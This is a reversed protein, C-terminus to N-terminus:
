VLLDFFRGAPSDHTVRVREVAATEVRGEAAPRRDCRTESPEFVDREPWRARPPPAPDAFAEARAREAALAELYVSFRPPPGSLAPSSSQAHSVSV